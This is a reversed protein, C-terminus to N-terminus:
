RDAERAGSAGCGRCCVPVRYRPRCATGRSIVGSIHEVCKYRQPKVPVPLAFASEKKVRTYSFSGNANRLVSASLCILSRCSLIIAARKHPAAASDTAALLFIEQCVQENPLNRRIIQLERSSFKHFM